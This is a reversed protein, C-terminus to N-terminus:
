ILGAIAQLWDLLAITGLFIWYSYLQCGVQLAKSINAKLITETVEM